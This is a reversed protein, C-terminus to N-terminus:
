SETRSGRKRWSDIGYRIASFAAVILFQTLQWGSPLDWQRPITFPLIQSALLVFFSAAALLWIWKEPLTLVLVGVFVCFAITM